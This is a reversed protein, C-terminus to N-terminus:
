ISFLSTHVICYLSILPLFILFFSDPLLTFLLPSSLNALCFRLLRQCFQVNKAKQCVSGTREEWAHRIYSSILFFTKRSQAAAALHKQVDPEAFIKACVM